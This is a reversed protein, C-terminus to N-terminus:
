LNAEYQPIVHLTDRLTPNNSVQTQLYERASAESSFSRAEATFPTNDAMVAVTYLDSGLVEIKDAFPQLQTQQHKSLPSKTIASGVFFHTFLTGIWEFFKRQFRRYRTDIVITEYRVIRKVARGTKYGGNDAGSLALGGQMPQFAAQSLKEADSMNKFQALAFQEDAKTPQLTNGEVMVEFKKFDSPKQNGLKDLTLALPVLRQTILLTGLPHLVLTDEAGELKRLSVQINSGEPLRATWNQEKKLEGSLLPLIAVPELTTDASEGWTVDFDASFEFFLFSIYGTGRARWPTPGSLAFELRISFVGMGFLRLSVSASIEIIFYFPSFQFLADFAIHGNIQFVDGIKFELEARAGFQATNSTVAFYGEVRVRYFPNNSLEVAIRRPTPFPLPPPSFRPHFGGVSLVFNPNDSWDILMGMEGEITMFLIRSDFLSAFFYARRKDFEIRGLFQVQLQLLAAEETPLAVKLVGLITLSEVSFSGQTSFEVIVGLSVSVLTPTGWGLKAMPGILFKGEEAPFFARLDSIIRPANAVVDRPFMINAVSGARIGALLAEGNSARNLGLLGGVGLLTFGFGLQLGTGFEVTIIILLSFGKSGDPMKTTVLGIAKLALFNAFTLELAGAYEERDFDFSLYGGGKVVGADISLGVGNPPKFGFALDVPGLNGKRDAPLSLDAKVGFNEIVGQLPGLNTKLDIAIGVPFKGNELGIFFSLGNIEVPGLTIHVALQVELVSSGHFYLGQESSFGIGLDFNNEVKIGSLIQGIFGDANSVDILFKGEQIDGSIRFTSQASHTTSDFNLNAETEIIFKGVELRSGNAEGFIIFPTGDAKGATFRLGLTGDATASPPTFIFNGNPQIVLSTQAEINGSALAELIWDGGQNFPITNEINIKEVLRIMLGRPDVDTKASVEAFLVDLVAPTVAPDLVAPFGANSLLSQLAPLLRSADFGPNGWDYLTRFRDLPSKIFESLHDFDLSYETYEPLNPDTSGSNRLERGIIGVFELVEPVVPVGELNRVVLYDVLRKPLNDAFENLTAPPIGTAGGLGRVATALDSIGKITNIVSSALDRGSSVMRGTDEADIADILQTILGPMQGAATAMGQVASSFAAVGDAAPPLQLGLQALLVKARGEALDQELPSFLRALGLAIAEFTGTQQPTTAPM